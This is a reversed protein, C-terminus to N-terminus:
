NGSRRGRNEAPKAYYAQGRLREDLMDPIAALLPTSGFNQLLYDETHIRDDAIERVAIAGCSVLLGLMLGVFTYM